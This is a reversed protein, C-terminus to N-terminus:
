ALHTTRGERALIHSIKGKLSEVLTWNAKPYYQYNVIIASNANLTDSTLKLNHRESRQHRRYGLFNDDSLAEITNNNNTKNELGLTTELEINISTIM